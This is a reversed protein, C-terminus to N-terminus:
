EVLTCDTLRFDVLSGVYKGQITVPQGKRVRKLDTGHGQPFVCRVRGSTSDDNGVLLINFIGLTYEIEIKDVIGKVRLIKDRFRADAATGSGEYASLLEGVTIEMVPAVPPNAALEGEIGARPAPMERGPKASKGKAVPRTASLHKAMAEAEKIGSTLTLAEETTITGALLLKELDQHLLRMGEERGSEMFVPIQNLKNERILNRIATTGVMVEFAAVRGKDDARRLLAQSIVGELVNALQIRILQQQGAPFVDIIRSVSQAAGRTHLTSLVLHGTEAATLASSMTELDRMEGIM